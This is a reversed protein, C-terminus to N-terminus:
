VHVSSREEPSLWHNTGQQILELTQKSGINYLADLVSLYPIFTKSHYQPYPKPQYNQFITPYNQFSFNDDHMYDFSGFACLYLNAQAWRLLAEVRQSRKAESIIEQSFDSSLLFKREIGMLECCKKIFAINLDALSDYKVNFVSEFQPHIIEFFATKKYNFSLSKLMKQAWGDQSLQTENLKAGYRNEKKIHASYFDVRNKNVFLKNRSHHSQISYQFDDLFIFKDCRYILEFFGQWPLFAPQMMAVKTVM